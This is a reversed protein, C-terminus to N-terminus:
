SFHRITSRTTANLQQTNAASRAADLQQTNAASSPSQTSCVMRAMSYSSVELSSIRCMLRLLHGGRHPLNRLSPRHASDHSSPHWARGCSADWDWTTSSELLNALPQAVSSFNAIFRRYFNAFGLYKQLDKIHILVESSLFDKNVLKILSPERTARAWALLESVEVLDMKISRTTTVLGLNKTEAALFDCKNTDLQLFLM